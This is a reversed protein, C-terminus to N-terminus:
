LVTFTFIFLCAHRFTCTNVWQSCSEAHFTPIKGPLSDSTTAGTSTTDIDTTEAAFCFIENNQATKWWWWFVFSSYIWIDTLLRGHSYVEWLDMCPRKFSITFSCAFVYSVSQPLFLPCKCSSPNIEQFLLPRFNCRKFWSFVFGWYEIILIKFKVYWYLRKSDTSVQLM